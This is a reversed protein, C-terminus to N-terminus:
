TEIFYNLFTTEHNPLPAQGRKSHSANLSRPYVVGGLWSVAERSDNIM